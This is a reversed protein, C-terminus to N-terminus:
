FLTVLLHFNEFQLVCMGKSYHGFHKKQFKSCNEYIFYSNRLNYVTCVTCFILFANCFPTNKLYLFELGRQNNGLTNSKFHQVINISLMLTIKITFM